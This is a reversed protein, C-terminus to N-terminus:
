VDAREKRNVGFSDFDSAFYSGPRPVSFPHPAVLSKVRAGTRTKPTAPLSALVHALVDPGLRAKKDQGVDGPEGREDGPGLQLVARLDGADEEFRHHM